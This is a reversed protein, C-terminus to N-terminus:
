MRSSAYKEFKMRSALKRPMPTPQRSAGARPRPQEGPERQQLGGDDGGDVEEPEFDRDRGDALM